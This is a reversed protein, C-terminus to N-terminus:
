KKTMETAKKDAVFIPTFIIALVGLSAIIIGNQDGKWFGILILIAGNTFIAVVKGYKGIMCEVLASFIKIFIEWLLSFLITPLQQLKKVGWERFIVIVGLFLHLMVAGYFKLAKM